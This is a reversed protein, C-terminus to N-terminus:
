FRVRLMVRTNTGTMDYEGRDDLASDGEEYFWEAEGGLSLHKNFLYEFGVTPSIRYGETDGSGFFSPLYYDTDGNLYAARAGFYLRVSETIPKLAFAGVGLELRETKSHGGDFEQDTKAYRLSPELMWKGDFEIPVYIASDDSEFSVGLGVDAANASTAAVICGLAIWQRM